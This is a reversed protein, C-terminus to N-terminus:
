EAAGRVPVKVPPGEGPKNELKRGADTEPDPLRFEAAGKTAQYTPEFERGLEMLQQLNFIM